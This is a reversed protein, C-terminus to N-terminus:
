PTHVVATDIPAHHCDELLAFATLLTPNNLKLQFAQELHQIETQNPPRKATELNSIIFQSLLARNSLQSQTWNHYARLIRIKQAITM